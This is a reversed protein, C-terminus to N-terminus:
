DYIVKGPTGPRSIYDNFIIKTANKTEKNPNPYVQTLWTLHDTIVLLNQFRGVCTALHLFDFGVPEM